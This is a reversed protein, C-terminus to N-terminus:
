DGPVPPLERPALTEALSTVEDAKPLPTPDPTEWVILVSRGTADEQHNMSFITGKEANIRDIVKGVENSFEVDNRRWIYEHHYM